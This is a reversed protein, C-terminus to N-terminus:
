SFFLMIGLVIIIVDHNDTFVWRTYQAVRLYLIKFNVNDRESIMCETIFVASDLESITYYISDPGWM